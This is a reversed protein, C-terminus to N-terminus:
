DNPSCMLPLMEFSVKLCLLFKKQLTANLVQPIVIRETVKVTSNGNLTANLSGHYSNPKVSYM